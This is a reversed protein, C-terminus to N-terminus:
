GNDLGFFGKGILSTSSMVRFYHLVIRLDLFCTSLLIELGGIEFLGADLGGTIVDCTEFSGDEDDLECGDV